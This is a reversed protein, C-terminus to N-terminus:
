KASMLLGPLWHVIQPFLALIATALCMLFFFPLADLAVSGISRGTLGQIVFLNLGVPPTIQALETMIVLYIGFWLPDYGAAMVIPLTIPLTMVIMSIGDLFMGLIIYFIALVILLVAPSLDLSDIARAVGAPIHLYGMTTSLFAAGVMIAIIMCSTRVAALSSELLLKWNLQRQLTTMVITVAVGLAGSESPSAFGTYLGGLVVVILIIVPALLRLGQLMARWDSRDATAPAMSPRFMAVIAIYAMYIAAIMLGPILGAAFLKTISVEALVGYIILVISPPILLGLSGAGALSGVALSRSYGRKQLEDLTIRGITATTATSSGCVMAFLASGAVNIHLFRGPIRNVFPALGNFLRQSIDTRFVIEGMWIFMPIAALEWSTTSRWVTPELIAGIRALPFDAIFYLSSFGILFLGAFVWIGIGLYFLLLIFIISAAYLPDM